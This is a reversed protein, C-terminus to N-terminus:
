KTKSKAKKKKKKKVYKIPTGSDNTALLASHESSGTRM